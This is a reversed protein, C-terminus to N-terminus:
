GVWGPIADSINLSCRRPCARTGSRCWGNSCMRVSAVWLTKGERVPRMVMGAVPTGAGPCKLVVGVFRM